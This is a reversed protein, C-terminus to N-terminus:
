EVSWDGPLILPGAAPLGVAAAQRWVPGWSEALLGATLRPAAAAAAESSTAPRLRDIPRNRPYARVPCTAPLGARSRALSTALDLGGLEDVLGHALADAGTWVRGRALEHVREYTMGRAQAVKSVFDAYVRDLWEELRQRVGERGRYTTGDEPASWEVDPHCFAMTRPMAALLDAKSTAVEYWRRVIEVNEQSM